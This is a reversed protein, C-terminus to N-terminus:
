VEISRITTTTYVIILITNGDGCRHGPAGRYLILPCSVPLKYHPLYHSRNDHHTILPASHHRHDMGGSDPKAIIIFSHLPAISGDPLRRTDGPPVVRRM